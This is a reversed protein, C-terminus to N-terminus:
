RLPGDSWVSLNQLMKPEVEGQILLVAELMSYCLAVIPLVDHGARVRWVEPVRDAFLGHKTVRISDHLIATGGLLAAEYAKLSAIPVAAAVTATPMTGGATAKKERRPHRMKQMSRASARATRGAQEVLRTAEPAPTTAMSPRSSAAPSVVVAATPPAGVPGRARSLWATGLGPLSPPKPVSPLETNLLVGLTELSSQDTHMARVGHSSQLASGLAGTTGDQPRRNQMTKPPFAVIGAPLRPSSRAGGIPLRPSPAEARVRLTRSSGGDYGFHLARDGVSCPAPPDSPDSPDSDSDRPPRAVRRRRGARETTRRSPPSSEVASTKRGLAAAIPDADSRVVRRRVRGRGSRADDDPSRSTPPPTAWGREGMSRSPAPTQKPAPLQLGKAFGATPLPPAASARGGGIRRKTSRHVVQTDVDERQWVKQAKPRKPAALKLGKRRAATREPSPAPRFADIGLRRREGQVAEVTVGCRRALVGDPVKGLEETIGEMAPHATGVVDVGAVRVATRALGRRIRRPSTQFCRATQRISGGSRIRRVIEPWAATETIADGEDLQALADELQESSVGVEEALRELPEEDLRGIVGTWWEAAHLESM